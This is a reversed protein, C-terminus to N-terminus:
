LVGEGRLREVEQATMGLLDRLVAVSDGGLSPAPGKPRPRTASMKVPNGLLRVKGLGPQKVVVTMERAVGIHPDEAAQKLDFIPCAPVNHETLLSVVEDVTRGLVWEQILPKLSAHNEVRDPNSRFREEEALWSLGTAEIFRGWIADNAIGIIVWGDVAEFSDYPYVFEYRNGIREPVEGDVFYKQPINELSAFVSDVLSVDVAQGEGTRERVQLASLIGICCFLASLIDGIATGARTPPSDPWGTISMLGGMAQGIIDYGPRDSYPGTQGFGSISAYVLRPNVKRLTEYGLGLREMTGPRFNELLVDCKKALELLIRKGEAHKLNLTISRKGRNLNVYYLSEGDKFPPFQRSDDGRGPIELKIIEAGMDALLMTCYPGALVRSLDLVRVGLLADRKSEM